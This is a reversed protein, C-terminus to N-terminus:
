HPMLTTIHVMNCSRKDDSCAEDIITGKNYYFSYNM